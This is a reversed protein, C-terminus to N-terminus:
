GPRQKQGARLLKVLEAIRQARLEPSRKTADIWRLYNKRYFTALGDFFRAADPEADLAAAVDAALTESQPGEPVLEATVLDGLRLGHGRRYAPGL